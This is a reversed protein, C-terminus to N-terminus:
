IISPTEWAAIRLTKQYLRHHPRIYSWPHRTRPTSPRHQYNRKSSSMKLHSLAHIRTTVLAGTAGWTRPEVGRPLLNRLIWCRKHKWHYAVNRNVTLRRHHSRWDQPNASGTKSSAGLPLTQARINMPIESTSHLKCFFFDDKLALCSLTSLPLAKWIYAHHMKMHTPPHPLFGGKLNTEPQLTAVAFADEWQRALHRSRTHWRYRKFYFLSLLLTTFGRL